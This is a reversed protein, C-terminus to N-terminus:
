ARAAWAAELFTLVAFCERTVLEILQVARDADGKKGAEEMQHLLSALSDAQISEAWSKMAHAESAIGSLDRSAVRQNLRGMQKPTESLYVKRTPEVIEEMGAERMLAHFRDLDVPPSDALTPTEPMVTSSM